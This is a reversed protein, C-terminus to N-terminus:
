SEYGDNDSSLEAAAGKKKSNIDHKSGEGVGMSSRKSVAAMASEQHTGPSGPRSQQSSDGRDGHYRGFL